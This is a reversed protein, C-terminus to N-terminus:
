ATYGYIPRKPNPGAIDAAYFRVDTSIASPAFASKTRTVAKM